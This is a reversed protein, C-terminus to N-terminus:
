ARREINAYRIISKIAETINSGDDYTIGNVNYTTNNLKGLQKGLKNIAYIVDDNVGNQNRNAMAYSVARLNDNTRITVGRNFMGNIAAAGSKVNSLDIVPRITPQADLDSNLVDTVRSIAKSLGSKAKEAMEYSANFAKSTYDGFANIFGQGAYAGIQYFVKSPSHENLARKAAEKAANAMARAKVAAALSGSAIGNAFGQALYKGASFFSNYYSKLTNAAGSVTNRVASAVKGKQSTIGSVFKLMLDIGAKQFTSVKSIISKYMTAIMSTTVSDLSSQKSKIGRILGEIMKAGASALKTSAGSFAKVVGAINVTALEDIAKKFSSVGSSNIGVLSNILNKLRNASTISSSVAGANIGSVKDSYSCMSSAISTVKFNSIGSTDIDVLSNILNTLRNASGISSSVLGADIDSVKDSYESMAKGIKKVDVFNSIGSTDLDVVSKTLNVLRRAYTLSSEISEADIGSVEDSYGTIGEGFKKIKTGFDDLSVKGDFWKDDPIAKQLETMMTGADIAAQIAEQNIAVSGDEGCLAKSAAKLAEGYTQIQVGFDGLNKMGQLAQMLGYMPQISSQLESLALGADAAQTIAEKNIAISGDENSLAKSASKLCGGYLAIQAGFDGLNKMGSLAQMLGWMPQISGQLEALAMGADAAQIIAEKNIAISGDEGCFADSATRLCDAFLVIQAGFDGLNKMGSLAQMLGWMPQIANQLEALAMGADAAQIIAEKNVAISGDEGCFADSASRLCNAFITIQAGFDGLNKMGTLAQMLGWMPQIANQLEALAMGADAANQITAKDITTTSLTESIDGMAGIFTKMDKCLSDMGSGPIWSAIANVIDAGALLLMMETLNKVGNLATEDIEKASAVFGDMLISMFKSLNEAIPILGDTFGAIFNSIFSSIGYAIKNLVPIGRDLFEEVKPCYTVLAGIATMLTGIVLIVGSLAFAGEVASVADVKFKSLIVTVASFALLLISLSLVTGLSVDINLMDLEKLVLGLLATVVVMVGIGLIADKGILKSEGIIALSASFALMLISLATANKLANEVELKDMALLIGALLTVIGAMILLTGAAKKAAPACKEIMAFSLMLASLAATSTALKKGDILSLAAVAGAMVAIAVAMVILNGKVENAGKTAHIMAAMVLGLVTVATLGKALGDVSMMSLLISVGALLGIAISFALITASVKAIQQDNGITTIKVIAKVLLLFAGVFIVGKLMEDPKLMGVLKCVGVLALLSFSIGLVMRGIKATGRDGELTTVKTLAKVFLLFAGVFVVGKLMEDPQLMGILKVVGVMLTMAAAISLLLRGVKATKEGKDITTVKVLIGVFITFGSVFAAAKGMDGWSMKAVLKAVAVMALMAISIKLIMNGAKDIDKTHKKSLKSVLGFATFVAAIAIVLGALGLFGQKAEEPNMSGILKVTAALMLLSAGIAVLGSKLGSLKVGNKDLSASASDLKNMAFALGYLIGSLVMIVAVANFLKDQDVYTLAIVAGVLIAISAAIRMLNKSKFTGAYANIVNQTSKLVGKVGDLVGNISQIGDALIKSVDYIKKIFLLVVGIPILAILKTYDFSKVLEWFKKLGKEINGLIKDFDVDIDLNKFAGSFGDKIANVIFNVAKGIYEIATKIGIGIGEVIFKGQEIGWTSPSHIGFLSCFTEMIATAISIIGQIALKAGEQLGNAIGRVIDLGLHDSDKLKGIWEEVKGFASAISDCFSEINFGDVGKSFDGFLDHILDKIKQIIKQVPELKMFAAACNKVGEIVAHLVKAIKENTNILFTNKEVWDHIKIIFDAIQGGVEAVNTGFLGLVADLIKLGSTLTAAWKSNALVNLSEFGKSIKEFASTKDGSALDSIAESIDKIVSVLGSSKTEEGKGFLNDFLEGFIEKINKVFESNVITDFLGKIADAAKQIGKALLDFGANILRNNFIFDHIKSIAEGLYATVDLISLGMASLLKSAVTLAIRLGGGAITTVIHLLSFLGKFTSTLKKATEDSIVLQSTFKHFGAIADFLQDPTIATFVERWAKGISSFVKIIAQGINKFSNILLWRGNIEDINDVLDDVSLGLKDATSRLEDYAEIQKKTYGLEKLKANSLKANQKILNKQEKTLERTAEGAEETSKTSDKQVGLLKNQADIQEQTYRKSNGLKENVKNQVEYYNKGAQTLADFREQGNGFKGLIVDDVISGLDSISEKVTTMTESVKKVPEVIDSFKDKLGSFTKGLASELLKNRADSMKNIFNSLVDGVASWMNRAEEFDGLILRWTTTWGSGLAEKLTDILQTFTKVKTAAEGATKAMDAMQKAEEQTYGQDIFKKVAAEYEQQTEAATSFQDLTQTLVETTLWGTSLSERFSGEAAIAAKAGTQLHESTRILADQFVQGGMGANVVSNWDMLKVTGSAIAQSLQYMASSAQQSTSGSIAALNAIGKIASVSTDLKVGAATFTGINRTMETFNYITKDAYANLEDLAANVIKVNTGEKQTNALITQVANMQTEYEQFGSKVPDLTLASIMRKGANVASNTINALATVGMVQLASFKATVTEVGRGLGSMDVKKASASLNDLGKAAGSLNLSRKLKELTSMSQSVNSEFQKNDFRMEVVREDVVKSM